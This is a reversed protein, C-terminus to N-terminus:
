QDRTNRCMKHASTSVAKTRTHIRKRERERERQRGGPSSVHSKMDRSDSVYAISLTRVESDMRM